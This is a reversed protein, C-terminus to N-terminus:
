AEIPKATHIQVFKCSICTHDAFLSELQEIGFVPGQKLYKAQLAVDAFARQRRSLMIRSDHTRGYGLMAMAELMSTTGTRSLGLIVAELPMMRLECFDPSGTVFMGEDQKAPKYGVKASQSAADATDARYEGESSTAGPALTKCALTAILPTTSTIFSLSPRPPVFVM